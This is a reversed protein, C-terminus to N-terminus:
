NREKMAIIIILATLACLIVMGAVSSVHSDKDMELMSLSPDDINYKVKVLQGETPEDISGMWSTQSKYGKGGVSYGYDIKYEMYDFTKVYMKKSEIHTVVAMAEGQYSNYKKIDLGYSVFVWVVMLVVAVTLIKVIKRLKAESEFYEDM